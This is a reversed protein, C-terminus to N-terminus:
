KIITKGSKIPTQPGNYCFEVLATLQENPLCMYSNSKSCNFVNSRKDWEAKNRPCFETM